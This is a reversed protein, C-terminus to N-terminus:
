RYPEWLKKVASVMHAPKPTTVYRGTDWPIIVPFHLIHAWKVNGGRKANVHWKGELSCVDDMLFDNLLTEVVGGADKNYANMLSIYKSTSDTRNWEPVNFLLVACTHRHKQGSKLLEPRLRNPRPQATSYGNFDLTELEALSKLVLTDADLWLVRDEEQFLEPILIRCYMAEMSWGGTKWLGGVPFRTGEPFKPNDIAKIGEAEIKAVLSADGYAICYLDVEGPPVNRKISNSLAKVGPFYYDTCGTVVKLTM